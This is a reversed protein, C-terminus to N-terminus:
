KKVIWWAGWAILLPLATILVLTRVFVLWFASGFDPYEVYVLNFIVVISVLMWILSMVISFKLTRTM